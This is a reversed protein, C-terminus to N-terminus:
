EIGGRRVRNRVERAEVEEAKLRNAQEVLPQVEERTLGTEALIKTAIENKETDSLEDEAYTMTGGKPEDEDFYGGIISELNDYNKAKRERLKQIFKRHSEEYDRKQRDHKAEKSPDNAETGDQLKDPAM